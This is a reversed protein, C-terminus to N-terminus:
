RQFQRLRWAHCIYNDKVALANWKGCYNRRNSFLYCNGCAAKSTTKQFSQPLKYDIIEGSPYFNSRKKIM